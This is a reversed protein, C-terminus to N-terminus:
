SGRSAVRIEVARVAAGLHLVTLGGAEDGDGLRKGVAPKAGLRVAGRGRGDCGVGDGGLELAAEAQVERGEHRGEVGQLAGTLTDIVSTIRLEVCPIGGFAVVAREAGLGVHRAGRGDDGDDEAVLVVLRKCLGVVVAMDGVDDLRASTGAASVADGLDLLHKVGVRVVREAPRPVRM